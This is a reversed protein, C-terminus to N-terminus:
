RFDQCFRCGNTTSAFTQVLLRFSLEFSLKSSAKDIKRAIFMLSPKRACIIKLPSLVKGFQKQMMKYDMKLILKGPGDIPDLRM